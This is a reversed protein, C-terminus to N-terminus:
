LLFRLFPDGPEVRGSALMEVRSPESAVVVVVTCTSRGADQAMATDWFCIREGAEVTQGAKVELRFGLGHLSNTDIGLHLLVGQGRSRIVSGHDKAKAVIGTVPSHVPWTGRGPLIAGGGGMMLASFVPDPVETLPLVTGALPAVLEM